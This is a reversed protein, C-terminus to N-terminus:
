IVLILRIIKMRAVPTFTKGYNPGGQQTYGKVIFKAKHKNISGDANYKTWFDM